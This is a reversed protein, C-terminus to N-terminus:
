VIYLQRNGCGAIPNIYYLSGPVLSIYEASTIVLPINPAVICNTHFAGNAISGPLVGLGCGFIGVYNCGAPIVNDSGGLIASQCVGGCIVNNCGGGIISNCVYYGNMLADACASMM